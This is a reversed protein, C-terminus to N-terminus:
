SMMTGECSKFLCALLFRHEHYARYHVSTVLSCVEGVQVFSCSRLEEKLDTLRNTVVSVKAYDHRDTLEKLERKLNQMEHMVSEEQLPLVNLGCYDNVVLTRSCAARAPVGERM